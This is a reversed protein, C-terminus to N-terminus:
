EIESAYEDNPIEKILINDEHDVSTYPAMKKALNDILKKSNGILQNARSLKNILYQNIDMAYNNTFCYMGILFLLRILKM